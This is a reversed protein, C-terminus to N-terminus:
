RVPPSPPQAPRVHPRADRGPTLCRREPASRPIPPPHTLSDAGTVAVRSVVVVVVSSVSGSVSPALSGVSSGAWRADDKSPALTLSSAVVAPM